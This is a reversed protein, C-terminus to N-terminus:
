SLQNSGTVPKTLIIQFIYFKNRVKVRIKVLIWKAHRSIL